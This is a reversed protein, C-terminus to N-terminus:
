DRTFLWKSDRTEAELKNVNELACVFDRTVCIASESPSSLLEYLLPLFKFNM